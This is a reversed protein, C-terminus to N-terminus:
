DGRKVTFNAIQRVDIASGTKHWKSWAIREAELRIKLERIRKQKKTM